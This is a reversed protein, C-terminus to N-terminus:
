SKRKLVVLYENSEHEPENVYTQPEYSNYNEQEKQNLYVVHALAIETKTIEVKSSLFSIVKTDKSTSVAAIDVKLNANVQGDSLCAVQIIPKNISSESLNLLLLSNNALSGLQKVALNRWEGSESRKIVLEFEDKEKTKLQYLKPEFRPQVTKLLEAINDLKATYPQLESKFNRENNDYIVICVIFVLCITIFLYINKVIKTM